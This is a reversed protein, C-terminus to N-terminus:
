YGLSDLVAQELPGLLDSSIIVGICVILLCRDSRSRLENSQTVRSRTFRSLNSSPVNVAFLSFMIGPNKEISM